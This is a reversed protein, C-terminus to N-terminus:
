PNSSVPQGAAPAENMHKYFEDRGHVLVVQVGRQANDNTPQDQAIVKVKPIGNKLLADAVTNQRKWAIVRAMSRRNREATYKNDHNSSYAVAKSESSAPLVAKKHHVVVAKHATKDTGATSNDTSVDTKTKTYSHKNKNAWKGNDTTASQNSQDTTTTTVVTTSMNDTGNSNDAVATTAQQLDAVSIDVADHSKVFQGINDVLEKGKTTLLASNGKFLSKEGVNVYIKGDILTIDQDTLGSAALATNLEDKIQKTTSQDKSAFDSYYAVNKQLGSNTTSASEANKQLDANKQQEATLNQQLTSGEQALTASDGRL